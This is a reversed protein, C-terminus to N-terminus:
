RTEWSYQLRWGQSETTARRMYRRDIGENVRM